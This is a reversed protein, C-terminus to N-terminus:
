SDINQRTDLIYRIFVTSAQKDISFIISYRGTILRHYQAKAKKLEYRACREPNEKLSDIAASLQIHLRRAAPIRINSIFRIHDYVMKAADEHVEVKYPQKNNM